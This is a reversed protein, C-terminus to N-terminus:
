STKETSKDSILNASPSNAEIGKTRTGVLKSLLRIWGVNAKGPGPPMRFKHASPLLTLYM